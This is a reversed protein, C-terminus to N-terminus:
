SFIEIVEDINVVCLSRTLVRDEALSTLRPSQAALMFSAHSQIQGINNDRAGDELVLPNMTGIYQVINHLATTCFTTQYGTPKTDFKASHWQVRSPLNNCAHPCLNKPFLQPIFDLKTAANRYPLM